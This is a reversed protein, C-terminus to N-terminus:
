QRIDNEHIDTHRSHGSDFGRANDFALERMNPHHREGHILFLLINKVEHSSPRRAIEEFIAVRRLDNGRDSGDRFSLREDM